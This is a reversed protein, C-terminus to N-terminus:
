ESHMWYIGAASDFIEDPERAPPGESYVRPTVINYQRDLITIKRADELSGAMVAFAGCGYSIDNDYWVFLKM